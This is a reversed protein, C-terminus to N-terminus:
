KGLKKKLAEFTAEDAEREARAEVEQLELKVAEMYVDFAPRPDLTTEIPFYYLELQGDDGGYGLQDMVYRKAEEMSTLNDPLGVYRVNEKYRVQIISYYRM